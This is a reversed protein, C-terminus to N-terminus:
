PVTGWFRWLENREPLHERWAMDFYCNKTAKFFMPAVWEAKLGALGCGIQTVQFNLEPHEAAYALFTNVKEQIEVLPMTSGIQTQRDVNGPQAKTPLAYAKGTPGEGVGMVAGYKLLAYRAAGGGHIGAKNSGFVFIMDRLPEAEAENTPRLKSHRSQVRQNMSM